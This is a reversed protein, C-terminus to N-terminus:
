YSRETILDTLGALGILLYLLECSMRHRVISEIVSISYIGTYAYAVLILLIILPVNKFYKISGLVFFPFLLCYFLAQPTLLCPFLPQCLTNFFSNFIIIAVTAPALPTTYLDPKYAGEPLLFYHWRSKQFSFTRLSLCNRYLDRVFEHKVGEYIKASLYHVFGTSIAFGASFIIASILLIALMRKGTKAM